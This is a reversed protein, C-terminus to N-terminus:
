FTGPGRSIRRSFGSGAARLVSRGSRESARDFEFFVARFLRCFSLVSSSSLFSFGKECDRPLTAGRHDTRARRLLAASPVQCRTKKAGQAGSAVGPVRCGRLGKNCKLTFRRRCPASNVQGIVVDANNPVPRPLTPRPAGANTTKLMRNGFQQASPSEGLNLIAM